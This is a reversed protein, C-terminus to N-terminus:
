SWYARMGDLKESMVWGACLGPAPEARGFLHSAPLNSLTSGRKPAVHAHDMTDMGPSDPAGKPNKKDDWKKALM